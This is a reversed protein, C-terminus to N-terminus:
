YKGRKERDGGTKKNRVETARVQFQWTAYDKSHTWVCEEKAQFIGWHTDLKGYTRENLSKKFKWHSNDVKIGMKTNDM